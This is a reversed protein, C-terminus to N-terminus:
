SPINRREKPLYGSWPERRRPRAPHTRCGGEGCVPDPSLEPRPLLSMSRREPKRWAPLRRGCWEPINWRAQPLDRMFRDKRPLLSFDKASDTKCITPFGSKRGKQLLQTGEPRAIVTVRQLLGRMRFFRCAATSSGTLYTRLKLIKSITREPPSKCCGSQLGRGCRR